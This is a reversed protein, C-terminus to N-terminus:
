VAEALLPQKDNTLAFNVEVVQSLMEDFVESFNNTDKGKIANELIVKKMAKVQQSVVEKSKRGEEVAKYNQYLVTLVKNTLAEDDIFGKVEPKGKDKGLIAISFDDFILGDISKAYGNIRTLHEKVFQPKDVEASKDTSKSIGGQEKLWKVFGLKKVEESDAFAQTIVIGYRSVDKRSMDGFVYRVIANQLSNSKELAEATALDNLKEKMGNIYVNGKATINVYLGYCDGITHYITEWKGKHKKKLQEVKKLYPKLLEENIVDRM